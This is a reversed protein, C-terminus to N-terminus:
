SGCRPAAGQGRHEASQVVGCPAQGRPERWRGPAADGCRRRDARSGRGGVRRRGRTRGSRCSAAPLSRHCRRTSRSIGTVTAGSIGETPAPFPGPTTHRASSAVPRPVKPGPRSPRIPCPSTPRRGPLDVRLAVHRAPFPQGATERDRVGPVAERLERPLGSRTGLFEVPARPNGDLQRADRRDGGPPKRPLNASASTPLSHIETQVGRGDLRPSFIEATSRHVKWANKDREHRDAERCGDRGARRQWCTACPVNGTGDYPSPTGGLARGARPPGVLPASRAADWGGHLPGRTWVRASRHRARRVQRRRPLSRTVSRISRLWGHRRELFRRSVVAHPEHVRPM